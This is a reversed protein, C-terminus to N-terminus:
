FDDLLSGWTYPGGVKMDNFFENILREFFIKPLFPKGEGNEPYTNSNSPLDTNPGTCDTGNLM